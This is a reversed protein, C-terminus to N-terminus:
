DQVPRAPGSPADEGFKQERTRLQHDLEVSGETEFGPGQSQEGADHHENAGYPETDSGGIHLNELQDKQDSRQTYGGPGQNRHATADDSSKGNSQDAKFDKEKELQENYAAPKDDLVKSNEKDKDNLDDKGFLNDLIM